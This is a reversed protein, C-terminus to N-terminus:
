ASGTGLNRVSKKELQPVREQLRPNLRAYAEIAKKVSGPGVNPDAAAFCSDVFSQLDNKNSRSIHRGRRGTHQALIADLQGVLWRHNEAAKHAGKTEAPLSSATNELWFRLRELASLRECLLKLTDRRRMGLGRRAASVGAIVGDGVLHAAPPILATLVSPKIGSVIKYVALDDLRGRLAGRADASAGIMAMLLEDAVGAVRLLEKRIQAAPPQAASAQQFARYLALLYEIKERASEPLGSAKQIAKWQRDSLEVRTM